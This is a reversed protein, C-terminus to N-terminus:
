CKAHIKKIYRRILNDETVELHVFKVRLLSLRIFNRVELRPAPFSVVVNKGRTALAKAKRVLDAYYGKWVRESPKGYTPDAWMQLVVQMTSWKDQEWENIGYACADGEVHCWGQTNLYDGIFTKGSCTYGTVWM